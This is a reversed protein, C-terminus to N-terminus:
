GAEPPAAPLELTFEAGGRSAATLEGGHARAIARAIPLGLGSGAGRQSRDSAFREFIAELRDAAIGPGTDRVLARVRDGARAVEVQVAGGRPTHRFANDLLNLFVQRLQEPDGEVEGPGGSWALEIGQEEAV